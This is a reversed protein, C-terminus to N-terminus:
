LRMEGLFDYIGSFDYRGPTARLRRLLGLQGWFVVFLVGACTGIALVGLSAGGQLAAWVALLGALLLGVNRAVLSWGVLEGDPGFCGCPVKLGQVLKIVVMTTFSVLLALVLALAPLLLLGALLLAGGLIELAPVLKTLPRVSRTPLLDYGYVADVFSEMNAFKSVGAAVFVAGLLGRGCSALLELETM